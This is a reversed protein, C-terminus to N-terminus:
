EVNEFDDKKLVNYEFSYRCSREESGSHSRGAEWEKNKMFISGAYEKKIKLDRTYIFDRKYDSEFDDAYASPIAYNCVCIRHGKELLPLIFQWTRVGTGYVKRDNEFPLPSMGLVFIKKM